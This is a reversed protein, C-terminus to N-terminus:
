KSAEGPQGSPYGRPTVLRGRYERTQSNGVIVTTFMDAPHEAMTKLTGLWISQEPRYANRIVTPAARYQGALYGHVDFQIPDVYPRPGVYFTISQPGISIGNYLVNVERTM